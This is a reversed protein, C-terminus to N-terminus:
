NNKKILQSAESQIGNSCYFDPDVRALVQSDMCLHHLSFCLCM